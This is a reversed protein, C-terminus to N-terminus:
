VEVLVELEVAANKPLSNAGIALRAHRGSDGFVANFLESAGDVVKPQDVFEDTCNAVGMVRVFRKIGDLSGLATKIQALANLACLRAAQYGQEVTVDRGLKGQFKVVGEEYPLQGAVFLLNGVRVTPTYAGAAAPAKPLTLGMQKLKDEPNM